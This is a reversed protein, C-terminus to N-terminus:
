LEEINFLLDVDFDDYSDNVYPNLDHHYEWGDLMLDADEDPNFPDFGLSIEEGDLFQDDDTDPDLPDTGYIEIEDKNLLGDGDGDGFGFQYHITAEDDKM